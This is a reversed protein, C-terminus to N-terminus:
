SANSDVNGGNNVLEILENSNGILTMPLVVLTICKNIEINTSCLINLMYENAAELLKNQGM